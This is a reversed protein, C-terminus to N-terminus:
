TATETGRRRGGLGGRLDYWCKEEFVIGIYFFLRTVSAAGRGGRSERVPSSWAGLVSLTIVRWHSPLIGWFLVHARFVCM